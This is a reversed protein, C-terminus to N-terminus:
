YRMSEDRGKKWFAVLQYIALGVLSLFVILVFVQSFQIDANIFTIINKM